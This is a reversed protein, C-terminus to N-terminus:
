CSSLLIYFRFFSIHGKLFLDNCVVSAIVTNLIMNVTFM